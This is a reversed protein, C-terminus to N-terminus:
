QVFDESRHGVLIQIGKYVIFPSMILAGLPDGWWREMGATILLGVLLVMSLYSNGFTFIAAAKLAPSRVEMALAKMYSGIIPILLMATAALLVGLLTADPGERQWLQGVGLILAILGVVVYACAVIAFLMHDKRPDIDATGYRVIRLALILERVGGVFADLGFTLLIASATQVWLLIGSAALLMHVFATLLALYLFQRLWMQSEDSV